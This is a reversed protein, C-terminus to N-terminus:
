GVWKAICGPHHRELLIMSETDCAKTAEDLSLHSSLPELGNPDTKKAVVWYPHPAYHTCVRLCFGEDQCPSILADDLSFQKIRSAMSQVWLALGELHEPSAPEVIQLHKNPTRNTPPHRLAVFEVRAPLGFKQWAYLQYIAAQVNNPLEDAGQRKGYTKWDRIHLIGGVQAMDDIFGKIRTGDPLTLLFEHEPGYTIPKNTKPDRDANDWHFDVLVLAVWLMINVDALLEPELSHRAAWHRIMRNISPSRKYNVCNLSKTSDPGIIVEYHDRHRPNRLCELISHLCLGVYTKKWTKSPLKLIREYYFSTSCSLLSKLSSASVRQGQATSDPSPKPPRTDTTAVTTTSYSM